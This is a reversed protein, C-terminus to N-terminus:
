YIPEAGILLKFEINITLDEFNLTLYSFRLYQCSLLVVKVKISLM